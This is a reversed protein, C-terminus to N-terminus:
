IVINDIHCSIVESKASGNVITKEELKIYFYCGFTFKKFKWLKVTKAPDYNSVPGSIYDDKTLGMIISKQDKTTIGLRYRTEKNKETDIVCLKCSKVEALFKNIELETAM